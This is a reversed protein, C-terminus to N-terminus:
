SMRENLGDSLFMDALKDFKRLVVPLSVTGIVSECALKSVSNLRCGIVGLEIRGWWVSGNSSTRPDNLYGCGASLEVISDGEANKFRSRSIFLLM